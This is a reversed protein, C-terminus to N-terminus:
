SHADMTLRIGAAADAIRQRVANLRRVTNTGPYIVFDGTSRSLAPLRPALSLLVRLDPYLSQGAVAAAIHEIESETLLQRWDGDPGRFGTDTRFEYPPSFGFANKVSDRKMDFIAALREQEDDDGALLKNFSFEVVDDGFQGVHARTMARSLSWQFLMNKFRRGRDPPADPYTRWFLGEAIAEEPDRRMVALRIGPILNRYTSYRLEPLLDFVAWGTRDSSAAYRDLLWGFLAIPNDISEPLNRIIEAEDCDFYNIPYEVQTRGADMYRPRNLYEHLLRARQHRFFPFRRQLYVHFVGELPFGAVSASSEALVNALTTKGSRGAGGILWADTRQRPESL